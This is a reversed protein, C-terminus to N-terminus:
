SNASILKPFILPKKKKEKRKVVIKECGQSPLLTNRLAPTPQPTSNQHEWLITVHANASITEAPDQCSGLCRAWPHPWSPVQSKVLHDKRSASSCTYSDHSCHSSHSRIPCPCSKGQLTGPGPSSSWDRRCTTYVHRPPRCLSEQPQLASGECPPRHPVLPGEGPVPVMGTGCRPHQGCSEAVVLLDPIFILPCLCPWLGPLGPNWSWSLM